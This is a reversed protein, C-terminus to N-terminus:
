KKDDKKCQPLEQEVTEVKKKINVPLQPFESHLQELVTCAQANKGMAKLSLTLKILADPVKSFSGKLTLKSESADEKKLTRYSKYVEAFAIAARSYDKNIYYTEGLWYHANITLPDQPYQEILQKLAREAEPYAQQSLNDQAEEYLKAASTESATTKNIVQKNNIEPDFTLSSSQSHHNSIESEKVSTSKLQHKLEEIQGRLERVQDELDVIRDEQHIKKSYQPAHSSACIVPQNFLILGLILNLFKKRRM